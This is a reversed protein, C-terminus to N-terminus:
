YAPDVMAGWGDFLSNHEEGLKEMRDTWANLSNEELSIKDTLGVVSWKDCHDNPENVSYVQYGLKHLDIALNAADDERNSYFFFEVPCVSHHTPGYHHMLEIVRANALKQNM